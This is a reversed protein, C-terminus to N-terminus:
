LTREADADQEIGRCASGICTHVTCHVHVQVHVSCTLFTETEHENFCADHENWLPLVQFLHVRVTCHDMGHHM